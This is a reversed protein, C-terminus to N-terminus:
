CISIRKYIMCTYYFFNTGGPSEKHRKGPAKHLCSIWQMLERNYERLFIVLEKLMKDFSLLWRALLHQQQQIQLYFARVDCRRNSAYQINSITFFRKKGLPAHWSRLPLVFNIVKTLWPFQRWKCCPIPCFSQKKAASYCAFYVCRSYFPLTSYWIPFYLHM